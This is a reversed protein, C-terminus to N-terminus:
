DRKYLKHKRPNFLYRSCFMSAIMDKLLNYQFGVFMLVPISALVVVTIPVWKVDKKYLVFFSACFTVMMAAVSIVLAILGVSLKTPLSLIFDREGHRSTLLSLFLLLSTSASSLSIADAILFVLFGRKRVFIPIGVEQIIKGSGQNGSEQINGGPVTFAVAFAVTVILTAVVVCDRMWNVGQSIVDKNEESFIEYATKGKHNRKGRFSALMMKEVRKFWLSERQMVLSAGSAEDRMKRSTLAILHLMTNGDGDEEASLWNKRKGMEYLINFIDLHRHMAAVHFITLGEDNKSWILTPHARLLEVVFFTNGMETAVFLRRFPYTDKPKAQPQPIKKLPGKLIREIDAIRMTMIHDRWILRLLRWANYNNNFNRISDPLMCAPFLRVCIRQRLNMNEQTMERKFADPKRALDGIISVDRALQPHNTVILLAIDFVDYTICQQLLWLKKDFDKWFPDNGLNNSLGYLYRLTECRGQEASRYLPPRGHIGHINVLAANRDVMMRVMGTYGYSAATCLASNFHNNQLLLDEDNMLHLLNRVFKNMRPTEKACGAIHLPTNYDTDIAYRVYDRNGDFIAKAADWDGTRAAKYLPVCIDFYRADRIDARSMYM